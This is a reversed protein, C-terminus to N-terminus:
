VLMNLKVLNYPLTLNFKQDGLFLFEWLISFTVVLVEEMMQTQDGHLIVFELWIGILKAMMTWM